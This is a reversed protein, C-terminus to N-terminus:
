LKLESMVLWGRCAHPKEVVAQFVWHVAFQVCFRRLACKMNMVVGDITVTEEDETFEVVGDEPLPEGEKQDVPAEEPQQHGKSWSVGFTNMRCQM